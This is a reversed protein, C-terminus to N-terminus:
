LSGYTKVMETIKAPDLDKIYDETDTKGAKLEDTTKYEKKGVLTTEVVGSNDNLESVEVDIKIKNKLDQKIGQSVAPLIDKIKAIAKLQMKRIDDSLSVTHEM